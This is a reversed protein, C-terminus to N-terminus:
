TLHLGMWYVKMAINTFESQWFWLWGWVWCFLTLDLVVSYDLGPVFCRMWFGLAAPVWPGGLWGNTGKKKGFRWFGFASENAWYGAAL